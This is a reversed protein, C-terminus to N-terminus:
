GPGEVDLWVLPDVQRGTATTLRTTWRGNADTETLTARISCGDPTDDRVLLARADHDFETTVGFELADGQYRPGPKLSLWRRFEAVSRDVVEDAPDSVRFVTRYGLM